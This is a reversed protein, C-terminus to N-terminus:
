RVPAGKTGLVGFACCGAFQAKMQHSHPFIAFALFTAVKRSQRTLGIKLAVDGYLQKAPNQSWM